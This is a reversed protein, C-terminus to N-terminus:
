KSTPHHKRASALTGDDAPYRPPESITTDQVVIGALRAAYHAAGIHPAHVAPRIEYRQKSAVLTDCLPQLLLEGTAFAGGSCSVPVTQAPAFELARAVALVIHALEEGAQQFIHRAAADGAQAAQAVLRSIQALQDRTAATEGYVYGCLDIDQRLQLSRKLLDHLPGRPLRGDSMRSFVNLGRIAIWYASGEDSFTEGWGGARAARGQRQGYAISGTGAVINIGDACDLSGAWGCVMDNDCSYRSHGLIAAPLAQLLPVMRSDEGFAPFGFFAHHIQSSHLTAQQLVAGIGQALVDGVGDLGVQPHYTTGFQAEALLRGHQDILAFRTKTGGGDMGIFYRTTTM